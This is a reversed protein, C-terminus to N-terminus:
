RARAVKRLQLVLAIVGSLFFVASMITLTLVLSIAAAFKSLLVCLAGVAILAYGIGNGFGARSRRAIFFMAVFLLVILTSFFIDAARVQNGYGRGALLGFVLAAAVVVAVHILWHSRPVRPSAAAGQNSETAPDSNSVM